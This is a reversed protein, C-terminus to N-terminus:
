QVVPHASYYEEMADKPIVRSCRDAPGLGRRADMWPAERHTRGSLENGSRRALVGCVADIEQRAWGELPAHGTVAAGLEGPRLMFKGRHRGYLEVSVPGNVWAQFDEGFLPEGHASLHYAQSYYALKQLKMTTMPGYHDLIYAAVNVVSRM